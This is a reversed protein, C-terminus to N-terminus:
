KPSREYKAKLRLMAERFRATAEDNDGQPPGAQASALDQRARDTAAIFARGVPSEQFAVLQRLDDTSLNAAYSRAIIAAASEDSQVACRDVYYDHWALEVDRWYASQPSIGHFDAPNARYAAVIDKQMTETDPICNGGPESRGGDDPGLAVLRRALVLQEDSQAVSDRREAPRLARQPSPVRGRDSRGARQPIRIREDSRVARAPSQVEREDAQGSRVQGNDIEVTRVRREDTQAAVTGSCLLFGILLLRRM